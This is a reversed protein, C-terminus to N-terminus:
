LVLSNIRKEVINGYNAKLSGPMTVSGGIAWISLPATFGGISGVGMSSHMRTQPGFSAGSASSLIGTGARKLIMRHTLLVKKPRGTTGSSVVIRAPDEWSAMEFVPEPSRHLAAYWWERELMIADPPAISREGSLVLEANWTELRAAVSVHGLRALGLTLLWHRLPDEM